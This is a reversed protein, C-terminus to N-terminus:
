WLRGRRLSGSSLSHFCLLCSLYPLTGEYWDVVLLSAGASRVVALVEGELADV